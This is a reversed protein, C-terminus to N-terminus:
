RKLKIGNIAMKELNITVTDVEYNEDGSVKQLPENVTIPIIKTPKEIHFNELNANARRITMDIMTIRQENTLGATIGEAQQRIFKEVTRQVKEGDAVRQKVDEIYDVLLFDANKWTYLYRDHIDYIRVSSLDAPNYRVFVKEGLHKVTEQADYFWIYEGRIKLKVGERTIKQLKAPKMLMLNLESESAIRIGVDKISKNWVDIRSMGKYTNQENGGYSQVNYDGDIWLELYQRVEYDQPIEGNKIRRKLSEPRELITGGCYGEFAKSLQNKLTYFTREIPKAKANRVIANRMEIQLRQLITTPLIELQKKSSNHERNGQGGFGFNLFERGNDVYVIKPIGFREIGHRLALVTSQMSPTDTINWGTIVGSKADQFTTIYLRHPTQTEDNISIIDLTHNDAIWVDNAYLNDYMRQIYPLCRDKMAKEGDRKYIKIFEAIDNEVHRRFTRETPIVELLEPFFEECWSQTLTYCRSVTLRNEDLYYWLFAEWVETPISSKGKNHGGRNEVLGGLDHEKYARYKRYLIDTSITLDPNEFKTKAIFLEDFEAKPTKDARLTQWEDLLNSWFVIQKRESESFEEFSKKISNSRKPFVTNKKKVEQLQLTLGCDKKLNGYYKAQLTENLSTVPIMYCMGKNQPHTHQEAQLKGTKCLTKVYRDSCGKLEAVEKVTLYDM